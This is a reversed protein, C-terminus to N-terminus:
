ISWDPRAAASLTKSIISLFVRILSDFSGFDGIHIIYDPKTEKIYKGIWVFRDQEIKPSDHTDGIVIIKHGKFIM